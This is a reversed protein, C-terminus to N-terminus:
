IKVPTEPTQKGQPLMPIAVRHLPPTTM